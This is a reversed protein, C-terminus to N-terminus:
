GIDNLVFIEDYISLVLQFGNLSYSKAYEIYVTSNIYKLKSIVIQFRKLSILRIYLNHHVQKTEQRSLHEIQLILIHDICVNVRSLLQSSNQYILLLQSTYHEAGQKSIFQRPRLCKLSAGARYCFLVSPYIFLGFIIISPLNPM